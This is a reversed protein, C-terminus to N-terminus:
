AARSFPMHSRALCSEEASVLEWLPSLQWSGVRKADSPILTETRFSRAPSHMVDELCHAFSLFLGNLYSSSMQVKPTNFLHGAENITRLAFNFM